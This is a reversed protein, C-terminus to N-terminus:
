PWGWATSEMWIVTFKAAENFHYFLVFFEVKYRYKVQSKNTNSKHIPSAFLFNLGTTAYIIWRESPTWAAVGMKLMFSKQFVIRHM